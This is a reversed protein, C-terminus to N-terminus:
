KIRTFLGLIRELVGAKNFSPRPIKYIQNRIGKPSTLILTNM